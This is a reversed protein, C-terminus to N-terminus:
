LHGLSELMELILLPPEHWFLHQVPLLCEWTTKQMSISVVKCGLLAAGVVTWQAPCLCDIGPFCILQIGRRPALKEADAVTM